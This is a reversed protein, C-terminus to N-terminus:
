GMRIRWWTHKPLIHGYWGLFDDFYRDVCKKPNKCVVDRLDIWHGLGLTCIGELLRLDEEIVIM